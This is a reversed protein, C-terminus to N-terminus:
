TYPSRSTPRGPTDPRRQSPAVPSPPARPPPANLPLPPANTTPLTLALRPSLSSPLTSRIPTKLPCGSSSPEPATIAHHRHGPKSKCLREKGQCHPRGADSLDDNSGDFGDYCAIRISIPVIPFDSSSIIEKRDRKTKEYRRWGTARRASRHKVAPWFFLTRCIGDGAGSRFGWVAGGV